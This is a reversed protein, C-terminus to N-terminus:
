EEEDVLAPPNKLAHQQAPNKQAVSISADAKQGIRGNQIL